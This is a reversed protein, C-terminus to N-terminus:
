LVPDNSHDAYAEKADRVIHSSGTPSKPDYDVEVKDPTNSKIEEVITQRDKQTMDPLASMAIKTQMNVRFTKSAVNRMSTIGNDLAIAMEDISFEKSRKIEIQKFLDEKNQWKLWLRLCNLEAESLNKAKASLVANLQSFEYRISLGSAIKNNSRRQAHIGSLHAIRYIEDIKRDIWKLAAEIPDLVETPMWDPKGAQGFEPNFQEISRPGTPIEKDDDDELQLLDDQGEMPQRRIPFGALKMMEEGCSLNQAITMVIPSIDKIDSDGIEPTIMNTMNKLWVFPIEGLDNSGYEFREPLNTKPMLRWREWSDPTWATVSNDPELLKLYILYRRHTRSDRQWEWDLINLLSYPAYYPYIGDKIEDGLAMDVIEGGSYDGPKNVLIGLAGMASAFKQSENWFVNYDTGYLNTDKTFMRWAPDDEISSLDRVAEKENLYFNFINIISKAFNFVYGDRLRARHNEPTELPHKYLSAEILEKGSKYILDSTQWEVEHTKYIDSKAYMEDKTRFEAM